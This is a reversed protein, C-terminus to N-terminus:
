WYILYSLSIQKSGKQKISIVHSGKPVDNTKYCIHDGKPIQSSSPDLILSLNLPIINTEKSLHLIDNEKSDPYLHVVAEQNLDGMTPPYKLFGKQLQCLWISGPSSVEIKFYLESTNSRSIFIMKRDIYGRGERLSTMVGKTDFFSVNLDWTTPGLIISSLSNKQRPLYDTFCKPESRCEETPSCAIPPIHSGPPPHSRALDM